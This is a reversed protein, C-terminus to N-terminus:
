KEHHEDFVTSVEGFIPCKFILNPNVSLDIDAATLDNVPSFHCARSATKMCKPCYPPPIESIVYPLEFEFQQNEIEQINNIDKHIKGINPFDWNDVTSVKRTLGHPVQRRIINSTLTRIMTTQM